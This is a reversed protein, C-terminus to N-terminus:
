GKELVARVKGVLTKWRHHERSGVILYNTVFGFSARHTPDAFGAQGGFGDHGFSTPSLLPSRAECELMVGFGREPWPGPEGWVSRGSVRRERMMTVTTDSLVRVGSTSTVTSSWMAALGRATSIGNAGPLVGQHVRPDNYGVNPQIGAGAPFANGFSMARSQLDAPSGPELPRGLPWDTEVFEAVREGHESPLGIWAEVGLPRALEDQLMASLSRGDVRRVLEDVLTGFTIAHYAYDTGPEWLPEQSLLERIVSDHDLVQDLTMDNRVASLGARHEMLGRVTLTTSIADFEPWFEVLPADPDLAGSDVLTAVLISVLGKTSSFMLSLTDANWPTGPHSEGGHLDIVCEGEAFVSFAAGGAPQGNLITDFTDRIHEFSSATFGRADM